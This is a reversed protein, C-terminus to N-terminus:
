AVVRGSVCYIWALKEYAALGTEIATVISKISILDLLLSSYFTPTMTAKSPGSFDSIGGSLLM